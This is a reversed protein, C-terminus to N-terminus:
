REILAWMQEPLRTYVIKMRMMATTAMLGPIDPPDAILLAMCDADMVCANTEPSCGQARAGAVVLAAAYALSLVPHRCTVM